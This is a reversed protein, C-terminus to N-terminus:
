RIVTISGKVIKGDTTKILYYYVPNIATFDLQNEPWNNQYANTKHVVRGQSDVIVVVANSGDVYKKPIVWTDNVGDNNPSILNPLNEVEPFTAQVVFPFEMSANCGVTQTVVARYSGVETIEFNDDNAGDIRSDNLYWEYEPSIASTTVTAFLSNDEDLENFDDVDISSTFDTTELNISASTSCSELEISVSYEGSVDTEYMQGTAGSIPEGDKFWQYNNANIASLITAGETSCYPNGLSSSINSTSNSDSESITVRNSTSGSTCSGYNTEAFYIGPQNVSLSNGDAVFEFDSTIIDLVKYWKFTLAPYNLPSNNEATGPNDITLLYSGGACYIGTEIFNNITFPEDQAKYYAAFTKSSESISNPDTSRIRILYGEGSATTPLSFNFTIPSTNEAGIDSTYIITPSSFSGNGDSLEATFQNTTGLGSNNTFSFSVEFNNFSPSACATDFEFNPKSIVVQAQMTENLSCVFFLVIFFLTLNRM